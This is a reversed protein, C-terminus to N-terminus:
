VVSQPVYSNTVTDYHMLTVTINFLRCYNIVSILIPTIGTVYLVIDKVNQLREHLVKKHYDFDFVQYTKIEDYLAPLHDIAKHTHRNKILVYKM